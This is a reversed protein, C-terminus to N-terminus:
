HNCYDIILRAYQAVTYAPFSYGSGQNFGDILSATVQPQGLLPLAECVKAPLDPTLAVGINPDLATVDAKLEAYSTPHAIAADIPAAATTSSWTTPPAAVPASPGACGTLVVVLAITVGAWWAYYGKYM